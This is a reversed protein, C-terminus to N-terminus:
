IYPADPAHDIKGQNVTSYWKSLLAAMDEPPMVTGDRFWDLSMKYLGGALFSRLYTSRDDAIGALSLIDELYRHFKDMMVMSYSADKVLQIFERESGLFMQFFALSIDYLMLNEKQALMQYYLEFVCDMHDLLIEQKSNYNRYYTMRSVGALQCLKSVSIEELPANKMLKVLAQYMCEQLFEKQCERAM